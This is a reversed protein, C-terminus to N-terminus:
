TAIRSKAVVDFRAERRSCTFHVESRRYEGGLRDDCCGACGKKPALHVRDTNPPTGSPDLYKFRLAATVFFGLTLPLPNPGIRFPQLSPSCTVEKSSLATKGAKWIVRRRRQESFAAARKNVVRGILMPLRDRKRRRFSPCRCRQSLRAGAKRCTPILEIDAERAPGSFSHASLTPNSGNTSGHGSRACM